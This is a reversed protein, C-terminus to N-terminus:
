YSNAFKNKNNQELLNEYVNQVDKDGRGSLNVVIVQEPNLQPALEIAYAVAHASELAPIIGEVQSLRVFAEIAQNDDVAALQLREIEALLCPEPGVGPYDLGSAVSYSEQINGDSDQLVRCKFGHIVGPKGKQLSLGHKQTNVGKGAPEVGLLKVSEEDIFDAFLGMANSGGGICAILYDPLRNIKSMSQTRVEKGIVSQLDAVITPYPHPGVVSGILYYSDQAEKIYVALAQDMADKFTGQGQKVEIVRAGLLKMRYVNMKQNIVDREGMYIDCNLDFLAAATATAVGHQGAGTEAILKHKGMEKALLAQGLTNNIKHAGTHNLDERKLYIQAGKLQKTLNSAFYLPSPRGVYDNYLEKLKQKFKPKSVLQQYQEGVQQLISELEPPVYRGGYQGYNGK